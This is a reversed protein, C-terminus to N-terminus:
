QGRSWEKQLLDAAKRATTRGHAVDLIADGEARELFAEDPVNLSGGDRVLEQIAAYGDKGESTAFVSSEMRFDERAPVLALDGAWEAVGDGATLFEILTAAEAVHKSSKPVALGVEATSRVAHEAGPLITPFPGAGVKKVSVKATERYSASLMPSRGSGDVLFLAKGSRFLEAPRDGKLTLASKALVGRDFLSGYATLASVMEPGNWPKGGTLLDDSLTPHTQGAITFLLEEQKRPEGSFVVPQLGPIEKKVRMVVSELDAATEPFSLGLESLLNVNYYMVAGGSSGMPVSYLTGGKAAKETQKVANEDLEDVWGGSVKDKWEDVPRLRNAVSRTMTPIPLGVVDLAEDGALAEPLRERYDAEGFTRLEVEIGPNAREFATIARTLAAEPLSSTWYKLTVPGAPKEPKKTREGAEPVAQEVPRGDASGGTGCATLGLALAATTTVALARATGRMCVELLIVTRTVTDLGAPRDRDIRDIM